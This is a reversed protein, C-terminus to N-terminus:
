SRARMIKRRFAKVIPLRDLWPSADARSEDLPNAAGAFGAPIQTVLEPPDVTEDMYHYEYGPVYLDDAAVVDITRVGYTSLESSTAQAPVIWVNRPGAMFEYQIRRNTSLIRYRDVRGGYLRSRIVSHHLVGRGLDPEFGKAFRLSEPQGARTFWAVRRGGNVLNRRDERARRRPASFDHYPDLRADPARRLVLGLAAVDTPIRRPRRCLEELAPQVEIPLDTTQEASYEIEEGDVIATALDGKGIWNEGASRVWHSAVRWVLSVDKYFIRPHVTRGGRQTEVWAVFFRIDSNQRLSSLWFRADFLDVAHRPGYGATLLRRPRRRATGAARIQMGGRLRLEFDRAVQRPTREVPTCSSM